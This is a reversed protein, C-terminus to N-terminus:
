GAKGTARNPFLPKEFLEFCVYSYGLTFGLAALSQTNQASLGVFKWGNAKAVAYFFNHSLYIGYSWFGLSRLVVSQLARGVWGPIGWAAQAVVFALILARGLETGVLETWFGFSTGKAAAVVVLLAAGTCLATVLAASCRDSESERREMWFALCAGAGLTEFAGPTLIDITLHSWGSLGALIRFGVGAAVLGAGAAVQRRRPFLMLALPWFLYFQQEVALAWFQASSGTFSGRAIFGINSLFSLHWFFIPTRETPLLLTMVLTVYYVPVIRLIRRRYFPGVIALRDEPHLNQARRLSRTILYGSLVFFLDVGLRGGTPDWRGLAPWYHHVLVLFAALARLGDLQPFVQNNM